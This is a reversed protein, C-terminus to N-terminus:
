GGRSTLVASSVRGMDSIEARIAFRERGSREDLTVSATLTVREFLDSHEVLPVLAAASAAFGAIEVTRGEIKLRTLHDTDPLLRTLAEVVKARPMEAAELAALAEIERARSAAVRRRAETEGHRRRAEATQRELDGLTQELRVVAVAVAAAALMAALLGLAPVQWSRGGGEDQRGDALFDVDLASSPHPAPGGKGWCDIRDPALGHGSLRSLVPELTSRKVVLQEVVARGPAAVASPDRIVRHAIRVDRHRFPTAQELELALIRHMDRLAALPLEIRRTFLAEYPLRVAIAPRSRREAFEALREGIVRERAAHDLGATLDRLRWRGAELLRLGDAEVALVLGRFSTRRAGLRMPVLGALERGWWQLLRSLVPVTRAKSSM